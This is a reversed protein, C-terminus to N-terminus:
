FSYRAGAQVLRPQNVQIGRTRDTISLEDALNKVTAFLRLTDTARYNLSANWITSSAIRGRQGDASPALTNAFDSYQKGVYQAELTAGFRGLEHSLGATLTNRPAYPQRNGAASGAIVARTAVNVFATEQRATMLHTYALRAGFGRPLRATLGLEAGEFLAKGQSLPTNGGAISGVAILNDFDERFFAAQVAVGHWPGTRVGIESNLSKEAEVDTATGTGGILDEVRPPAFGRHVSGFVTLNERAQWTAGLGPLTRELSTEGRVGNLRNLREFTMAEHRVVPTLSVAGFDFRHAAFLAHALAERDNNEVLAGTRARPSDGNLQRRGQDEHHLKLGAQLEGLATPLALRTEAGQTDYARLRGQVNNFQTDPDVRRGALRHQLFTASVGDIVVVTAGAGHQGDQSNSSQRWWDRDFSAFYASTTLTAGDLFSLRHTASLGTREIDFEDNKFPNYRAGLRDFEAQTLGSYTITSRETYYNARLTLTHNKAPAFTYKLNFDNIAHEMNDRAGDGQKRVYDFLAGREGFRLHGNFYSRNGGAAQVFGAPSQPADPTLYNIVGGITQPGFLLSHAGKLVEVTSFRDIPPHYYSANDGYPAYALPMGDELLAVKTSRTPNLGRLGINPRLGFGEEDRVTLGPVRRLAENATFVHSLGLDHEGITDAAGGIRPLNERQGIVEFRPALVLDPATEPTTDAPAADSPATQATASAALALGLLAHLPLLRTRNM